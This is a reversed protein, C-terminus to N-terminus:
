QIFLKKFLDKYDTIKINYDSFKIIKLLIEKDIKYYKIINQIKELDNIFYHVIINYINDDNINIYTKILNLSKNNLFELSNKNLLTSYSLTNLKNVSYKPMKNIFYSPFSCKYYFNYKYFDFNQNIFIYYDMLDGSLFLNYIHCINQIKVNDSEKNNKIIFNIFNEYVYFGIMSKDINYYSELNDNYKNLIKFSADILTNEIKKKEFSDILLNVQDCSYNEYKSIIYNCLNLLRRFDFQSNKVIKEITFSDINIKNDVIIKKLLKEIAYKSPRDIKVYVGKKKLTSIKKNITNTICIFPSGNKKKKSNDIIKLLETISGRDTNGIGDLEDIIIGMKQKKKNTMFDLVNINGDIKDLEEKLNKTNRMFSANYEIFDFDYKNFLLNAALTKGVGPPGHILLVNSFKKKKKIFNEIFEIMKKKNNESINLENFKTPKYNEM